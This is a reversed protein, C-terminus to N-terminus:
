YRWRSLPSAAAGGAAMAASHRGCRRTISHTERFDGRSQFPAGSRKGALDHGAAPDRGASLASLGVARM